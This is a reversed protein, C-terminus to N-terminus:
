NATHLMRTKCLATKDSGRYLLIGGSGNSIGGGWPLQVSFKSSICGLAAISITLVYLIRKRPILNLVNYIADAIFLCTLFWLAGGIPMYDDTNSLLISRLPSLVDENHVFVIWIIYYMAGFIVYPILLNRARKKLAIHVDSVTSPKKFFYGSILFFMPMHFAHIFHDYRASLPIHGLIMLVIGIGRVLDIYEERQKQM